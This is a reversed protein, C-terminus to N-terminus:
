LRVYEDICVGCASIGIYLSFHYIIELHVDATAFKLQKSVFFYLFFCCCCFIHKPCPLSSFSYQFSLCFFITLSLRVSLTPGSPSMSATLPLIHYYFFRNTNKFIVEKYKLFYGWRVGQSM